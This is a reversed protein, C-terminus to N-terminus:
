PTAHQRDTVWGCKRCTDQPIADSGHLVVDMLSGCAQCTIVREVQRPRGPEVIRSTVASSGAGAGVVFGVVAAFWPEDTTAILMIAAVLAILGFLGKSYM